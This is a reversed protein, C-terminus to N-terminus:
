SARVNCIKLHIDLLFSVRWFITLEVNRAHPGRCGLAKTKLDNEAAFLERGDGSAPENPIAVAQM